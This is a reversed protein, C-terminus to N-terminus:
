IEWQLDYRDQFTFETVQGDAHKKAIKGKGFFDKALSHLDRLSIGDEQIRNLITERRNECLAPNAFKGLHWVWEREVSLGLFAHVAEILSRNVVGGERSHNAVEM